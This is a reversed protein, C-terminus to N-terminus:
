KNNTLYKNCKNGAFILFILKIDVRKLMRHQTYNFDIISDIKKNTMLGIKNISEFNVFYDSIEVRNFTFVCKWFSEFLALFHGILTKNVALYLKVLKLV